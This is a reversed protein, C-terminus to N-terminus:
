KDRIANGTYVIRKGITKNYKKISKNYKSEVMNEVINMTKDYNIDMLEYAFAYGYQGM